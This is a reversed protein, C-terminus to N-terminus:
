GADPTGKKTTARKKAVPKSTPRPRPKKPTVPRPAVPFDIVSGLMPDNDSVLLEHVSPQVPSTKAVPTNTVQFVGLTTLLRHHCDRTDNCRGWGWRRVPLRRRRTHRCRVAVTKAYPSLNM